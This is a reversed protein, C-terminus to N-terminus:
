KAKAKRFVLLTLGSDAKTSFEAPREGKSRGFRLCVKLEDGNIAYIGLVAREQNSEKPLMIDLHKPSKTTDIRYSWQTEHEGDINVTILLKDGKFTFGM